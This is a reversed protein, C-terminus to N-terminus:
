KSAALVFLSDLQEESLSLAASLFSVLQSDRKVETAYEWEIKAADAGAAIATNVFSLLGEELLALRAQRMTVSQPVVTVVPPAVYEAIPGFEGNIAAFYLERGHLESDNPSACFPVEEDLWPFSVILDISGDANYKPSHATISM